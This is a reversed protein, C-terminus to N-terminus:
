FILKIQFTQKGPHGINLRHVRYSSIWPCLSFPIIEIMHSTSVSLYHVEWLVRQQLIAMLM